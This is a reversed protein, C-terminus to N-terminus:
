SAKAVPPAAPQSSELKAGQADFIGVNVLGWKQLPALRAVATIPLRTGGPLPLGRARSWHPALPAWLTVAKLVLNM